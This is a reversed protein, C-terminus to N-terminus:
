ARASASSPTNSWCSRTRPRWAWRFLPAMVAYVLGIASLFAIGFGLFLQGYAQEQGQSARGVGPPLNRMIPLKNV